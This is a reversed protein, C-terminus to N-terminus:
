WELLYEHYDDGRHVCKTEKCTGKRKTLLGVLTSLIGINIQCHLPHFKFNEIRFIALRRKKDFEVVRFEGPVTFYKEWVKSINKAMSELSLFYKLFIRIVISSKAHFVGIEQFKEDKYNFLRQIVVLTVAELGLPYFTTAKLKKYKIPYGLKTMIDELRKLGEEGEEKFIFEAHTRMGMGRVEGKLNMLEDVEEKSIMEEM